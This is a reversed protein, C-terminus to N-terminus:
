LARHGREGSALSVLEEVSVVTIRGHTTEGVGRTIAAIATEVQAGPVLVDVRVRQFLSIDRGVGRFTQMEDRDPDTALQNTFTMHRIGSDILASKVDTLRDPEITAIVTYLDNAPYVVPPVGPGSQPVAGALSPLACLAALARRALGHM